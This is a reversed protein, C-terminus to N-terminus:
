EQEDGRADDEEQFVMAEQFANVPEPRDQGEQWSHSQTKEERLTLNDIDSDHYQAREDEERAEHEQIAVISRPFLLRIKSICEKTKMERQLKKKGTKAPKDPHLM